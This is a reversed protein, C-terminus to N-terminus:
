PFVSELSLTKLLLKSHARWTSIWYLSKTNSIRPLISFYKFCCESQPGSGLVKNLVLSNESACNLCCPTWFVGHLGFFSMLEWKNMQNSLLKSYATHLRSYRRWHMLCMDSEKTISVMKELWPPQVDFYLLLPPNVSQSVSWRYTFVIVRESTHATCNTAKKM